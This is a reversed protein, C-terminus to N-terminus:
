NQLITNRTARSLFQFQEKEYLGPKRTQGIWTLETWTTVLTIIALAPFLNTYIALIRRNLGSITWIRFYLKVYIERTLIM